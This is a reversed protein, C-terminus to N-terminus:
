VGARGRAGRIVCAQQRMTIRIRKIHPQTVTLHQCSPTDDVRRRACGRCRAARRGTRGGCREAREDLARAHSHLTPPTSPCPSPIHSAASVTGRSRPRGQHRLASRAVDSRDDSSARTNRLMPSVLFGGPKQAVASQAAPVRASRSKQTHTSRAHRGPHVACTLHRTRAGPRRASVLIHAAGAWRM